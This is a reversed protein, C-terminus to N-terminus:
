RGASFTHSICTCIYLLSLSSLSLSILSLSLSSSSLHLHSILSPIHSQFSLLFDFYPLFHLAFSSMAPVSRSSWVYCTPFEGVEGSAVTVGDPHVALCTVEREHRSFIRQTRRGGTLNLVVCVRAVAYIVEGSKLSHLNNLLEANYGLVYELKLEDEPASKDEEEDGRVDKNKAAKEQIAALYPHFSSV